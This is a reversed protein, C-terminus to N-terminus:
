RERKPTRNQVRSKYLRCFANNYMHSAFKPRKSPLERSIERFGIAHLNRGLQHDQPRSGVDNSTMSRSGRPRYRGCASVSRSSENQPIIGGLIVGSYRPKMIFKRGTSHGRDIEIRSSGESFLMAQSCM